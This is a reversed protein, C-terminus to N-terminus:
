PSSRWSVRRAVAKALGVGYNFWARVAGIEPRSRQVDRTERLTRIFRTTSIGSTGLKVLIEDVFAGKASRPLRLLFEYDGAIAFRTDFLGYTEFLTRRHLMSPHIVVQHSRMREWDWPEGKVQVTRGREDVFAARACVLDADGAADVMMGLADPTTLYDDAGLFCIWAGKSRAVGENLADYIGADSRTRWYSFEKELERLVDVTGDTSGGDLVIVEKRPYNQSLVSHLSRQIGRRQNLVAVVISVLPTSM